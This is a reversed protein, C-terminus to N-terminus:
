APIDTQIDGPTADRDAAIAQLARHCRAAAKCILEACVTFDRIVGQGDLSMQGLRNMALAGERAAAAKYLEAAQALDPQTGLGLEFM